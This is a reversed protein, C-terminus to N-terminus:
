RRTLRDAAEGTARRWVRSAPGAPSSSWSRALASWMLKRLSM